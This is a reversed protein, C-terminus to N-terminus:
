GALGYLAADSVVQNRGGAKAMYLMQDAANLNNDLSEGQQIGALGISATVHVASAEYPITLAAIRSRVEECLAMVQGHDRRLLMLIFEEGGFRAALFGERGAVAALVGAVEKLVKDGADHGYTDNVQKFHDIDLIGIWGRADGGPLGELAAYAHEFFARRNFLGTLLDREALYRLRKIQQLTEINHAVRCQVEEDIFPRYIFDAAGAKLFAASLGRDSSSSIGIVRVRDAPRMQRIRRTLHQGDMDPMNYDTLILEIDEHQTLIELAESAAAAEFVQCNQRRLIAALAARESSSDDVLLVPIAHGQTAQGVLAIIKEVSEGPGKVLYDLMNPRAMRQRIKEDIITTFLITPIDHDALLDLIEGRPADPLDVGAIALAPRRSKLAERAEAYSKYGHVPCSTASEIREKLLLTLAVSDEILFVCGEAAALPRSLAM